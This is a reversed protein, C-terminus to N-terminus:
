AKELALSKLLNYWGRWYKRAFVEPDDIPDYKVSVYTGAERAKSMLLKIANTSIGFGRPNGGGPMWWFSRGMSRRVQDILSPSFVYVNIESRGRDREIYLIPHKFEYSEARQWSPFGNWAVKITSLGESTKLSYAYWNSDIRVRFDWERETDPASEVELGLEYELLLKVFNERRKGVDPSRGEIYLLEWVRGLLKLVEPKGRLLNILPDGM